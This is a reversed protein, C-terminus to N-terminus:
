QYQYPYAIVEYSSIKSYSLGFYDITFSDEFSVMGNVPVDDYIHGNQVGILNGNNDYLLIAYVISEQKSDSTNKIRGVVDISGFQDEKVSVDVVPFRVLPVKARKVDVHPVIQYETEINGKDFTTYHYYVGVEGPTLVSPYASVYNITEVLHGNKNEIDFKGQSLYINTNGTNKVLSYCEIWLTGISSNAINHHTDIIEYSYNNKNTVTINIVDTKVTEDKTQVFITANGESLATTRVLLWGMNNKEVLEFKVVSSDSSVLQIDEVAYDSDSEVVIVYDSTEGVDFEEESFFFFYQLSTINSQSTTPATTENSSPEETSETSGDESNGGLAAVLIFFGIVSCLIIWLTKKNKRKPKKPHDFENGLVIPDNQNNM